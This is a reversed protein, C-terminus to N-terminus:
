TTRSPASTKSRCIFSSPFSPSIRQVDIKRPIAPCRGASRSPRRRRRARRGSRPRRSAAPRASPSLGRRRSRARHGPTTVCAGGGGGLGAIAQRGRARASRARAAVGLEGRGRRAPEDAGGLRARACGARADDALAARSSLALELSRGRRCRRRLAGALTDTDHTSTYVVQHVRHNELRHPNDDPGEFRGCAPGGDGPVRARRPARPRGAHDRRPGRRDRSPHRARARRGHLRRGAPGADWHGDRATRAAGARGLLEAFGRFHDIRFADFLGLMRRLRETWWRYGSARSRWGLRLASQGLDPRARQAPRAARGGRLRGAPLARPPRRPRLQREAVYIPVDGILRVDRQAAYAACRRGSASSGCRSPWRTAARSGSGTASGTPTRPRSGACSRRSSSRTPTPSSGRGPPSRRRGVRVSVRARRTSQAAAGALLPSRGRRALRRVRVGRPRAPRRSALDPHLNVGLSRSLWM